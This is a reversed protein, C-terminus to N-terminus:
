GSTGPMTSGGPLAATYTGGKLGAIVGEVTGKAPRDFCASVVLGVASSRDPAQGWATLERGGGLARCGDGADAVGKVVFRGPLSGGGLKDVQRFSILAGGVAVKGVPPCVSYAVMEQKTCENREQLPQAGVFGVVRGDPATAVLSTWGSGPLKLRLGSLADLSVLDYASDTSRTPSPLPSGPAPMARDPSAAPVVHQGRPMAPDTPQLLAAAVVAAATLGGLAAAAGVAVRRRRHRRVRRRIQTMRDHPAPTQPVVRELLVGLEWEEEPEPEANVGSM